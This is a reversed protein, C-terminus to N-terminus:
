PTWDTVSRDVQPEAVEMDLQEAAKWCAHAAIRPDLDGIFTTSPEDASEAVMITILKM